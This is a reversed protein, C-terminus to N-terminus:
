EQSNSVKFNNILPQVSSSKSEQSNETVGETSSSLAVIKSTYWITKVNQEIEM